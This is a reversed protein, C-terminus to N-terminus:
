SRVAGLPLNIVHTKGSGGSADLAFIKGEKNNVSTLISNFVHKQENNLNAYKRDVDFLILHERDFNLEDAITLPLLSM